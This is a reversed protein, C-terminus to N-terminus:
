AIPPGRRARPLVQASPRGLASWLIAVLAVALCWGALVDSPHHWQEWAIVAAYGLAFPVGVAAILKRQRPSDALVVLVALGAMSITASGSPFSYSDRAGEIAPREVLGKVVASLLAPVAVGAVVFVVASLRRRVLLWVVLAAVLAAGALTAVHLVPDVHVDDSSVPAIRSLVDMVAGDWGFGDPDDRAAVGLAVFLGLAAVATVEVAGSPTFRRAGGAARAARGGARARSV